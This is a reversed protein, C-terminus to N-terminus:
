GTVRRWAEPLRAPLDGAAVGARGLSSRALEGALGHLYAGAAAAEFPGLGQARLAVITGALVDGTGGTALAPNAFPEIVTRGDPAAVVTFAGKLVIIHGWERAQRRAVEVRDAQVEAVTSKMLRAMEGPHPTLITQPPLLSPWGPLEALINLGDADVILPPLFVKQVAGEDARLFGAARRETGGLLAKVFEVTEKERGLGPGLLMADYQRTYEALIEAAPESLVGLEHPLLLYTAEALGAAVASHISAPLALTVLGAGARVAAAGALRAAGTYNASGAVILARGFTGKHADLPRPPLWDRVMEPTVVELDVDAALTPDTGIDAVLLEGVAAAAPFRFHGQKPYAFTVTLDAQLSLDDLAGTDFDMGSPGDVAVVLPRRQVPPDPIGGVRALDPVPSRTRERIVEGVVQLIQAIAGKLPPAAGTGLLADIVVDAMSALKRLRANGPDEDVLLSPIGQEQLARYNPDVQPDRPRALYCVVDAGARALYRAAVLGDGGNNGPGVLVLIRKKEVNQRAMLARAVAYGAREMMMEYTHGAADSTAEIARMQAVTVVKM